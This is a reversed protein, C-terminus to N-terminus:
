HVVVFGHSGSRVTGNASTIEVQFYLQQHYRFPASNFLPHFQVPGVLSGGSGNFFVVPARMDPAYSWRANVTFPLGRGNGTLSVQIRDAGLDVFGDYSVTPKLTSPATTRFQGIASSAQGDATTVVVRYWYARDGVLGTLYFHVHTAISSGYETSEKAVWLDAMDGHQSLQLVAHTSKMFNEYKASVRASTAYIEYSSTEIIRPPAASAVGAASAAFLGCFLFAFRKM